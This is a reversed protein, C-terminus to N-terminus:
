LLKYYYINTRLNKGDFAVSKRLSRKRAINDILTVNEMETTNSKNPTVYKNKDKQSLKLSSKRSSKM